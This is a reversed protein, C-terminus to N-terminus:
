SSERSNCRLPGPKCNVIINHRKYIDVRILVAKYLDDLILLSYDNFNSIFTALNEAFM